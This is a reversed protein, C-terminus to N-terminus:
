LEEQADRLPQPFTPAVRVRGAEWVVAGIFAAGGLVSISGWMVGVSSAHDPHLVSVVGFIVAASGASLGPGALGQPQPFAVPGGLGIAIAPM